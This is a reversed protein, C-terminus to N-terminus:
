SKLKQLILNASVKKTRDAEKMAMGLAIDEKEEVTLSKSTIGMKKLVDSVLRMEKRNKPVVLLSDM